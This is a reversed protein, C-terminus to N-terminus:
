SILEDMDFGKRSDPFGTPVIVYGNATLLYTQGGATPEAFYWSLMGPTHHHGNRRNGDSSVSTQSEDATEIIGRGSRFM